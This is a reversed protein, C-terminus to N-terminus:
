NLGPDLDESSPPDSPRASGRGHPRTLTDELARALYARTMLWSGRAYDASPHQVARPSELRQQHIQLALHDIAHVENSTLRLTSVSRALDLVSGDLLPNSTVHCLMSDSTDAMAGEDTHSGFDPPATIEVPGAPSYMVVHIGHARYHLGGGHEVMQLVQYLSFGPPVTVSCSEAFSPPLSGPVLFELSLRRDSSDGMSDRLGCLPTQLSM